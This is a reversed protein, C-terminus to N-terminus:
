FACIRYTYMKYLIHICKIYHHFDFKLIYWAYVSPFIFYPSLTFMIM